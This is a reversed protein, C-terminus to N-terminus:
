RGHGGSVCSSASSGGCSAGGGPQTMELGQRTGVAAAATVTSLAALAYLIHLSFRM